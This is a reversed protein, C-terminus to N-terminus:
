YVFGTATVSIEGNNLTAPSSVLEITVATNRPVEIGSSLTVSHNGSMARTVTGAGWQSAVNSAYVTAGGVKVEVGLVLAASAATWGSFSIDTILSRKGIPPLLNAIPAQPTAQAFGSLSNIPQVAYHSIDGVPADARSGTSLLLLSALSLPVLASKSQM